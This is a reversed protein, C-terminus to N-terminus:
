ERERERARARMFTEIRQSIEPDDVPRRISEMRRWNRVIDFYWYWKRKVTTEIFHEEAPFVAM